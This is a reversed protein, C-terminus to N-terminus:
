EPPREPEQTLAGFALVYTDPGPAHWLGRFRENNERIAPILFRPTSSFGIQDVVVYGVERKQMIDIVESPPKFPYVITPLGSVVHMWFPKRCAVIQGPEGHSRLWQGAKFYNHWRPEYEAKGRERLQAMGSANAGLALLLMLAAAVRGTTRPAWALLSRGTYLVFLVFLPILPLLFREDVWPWAFVLALSLVTYVVPLLLQRRRVCDVVAYIGAALLVLAVLRTLAPDDELGRVFAAPLRQSLNSVLHSGLRTIFGTVDMYGLEPQYPNLQFMQKVYFGGGSVSRNRLIWPLAVALAAVATIAAQRWHKHVVLLLVLAWVLVLGFSRLHYAWMIVAFGVVSWASISPIGSEPWSRAIALLGLISFLLYPIESMVQHSYDLLLPNTACLVAGILAPLTGLLERLWLYVVAMSAAFLCVILWKMAIWDSVPEAGDTEVAALPALMLPFGFPYKTAPRPDPQNIYTLGEGQALSRALTIFETNDGTQSLKADFTWAGLGFALLAIALPVMWRGRRSELENVLRQLDLEQAM